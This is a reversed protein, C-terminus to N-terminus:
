PRPRSEPRFALRGDPAQECIGALAEGRPGPLTVRAGAAQDQCVQMFPPPPGRHDPAVMAGRQEFQAPPPGFPPPPALMVCGSLAMGLVGAVVVFDRKKM